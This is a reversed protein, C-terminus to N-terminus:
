RILFKFKQNFGTGLVTAFYTGKSINPLEIKTQNKVQKILRGTINYINLTFDKKSNLGILKLNGNSIEYGIQCSKEFLLGNKVSVKNGRLVITGIDITDWLDEFKISDVFHSISIITDFSYDKTHFANTTDTYVDFSISNYHTPYDSLLFYGNSDISYHKYASDPYYGEPEDTGNGEDYYKFYCKRNVYLKENGTLKVPSNSSDVVRGKLYIKPGEDMKGISSKAFYYRTPCRWVDVKGDSNVVRNGEKLFKLPEAPCFYNDLYCSISDSYKIQDSNIMWPAVGASKVNITFAGTIKFDDFDKASFVLVSDDNSILDFSKKVFRTVDVSDTLTITIEDENHLLKVVIPNVPIYKLKWDIFVGDWSTVTGSEVDMIHYLKYPIELSWDTSSKFYAESVLPSITAIQGYSQGFLGVSFLILGFLLRKIRM